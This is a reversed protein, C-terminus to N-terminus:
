VLSSVPNVCVGTTLCAARDGSDPALFRWRWDYAEDDETGNVAPDGM